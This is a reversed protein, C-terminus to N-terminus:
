RAEVVGELLRRSSLAESPADTSGSNSPDIVGGLLELRVSITVVGVLCDFTLWSAHAKSGDGLLDECTSGTPELLPVAREMRLEAGCM